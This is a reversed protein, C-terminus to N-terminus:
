EMVFNWIVKYVEGKDLKKYSGRYDPTLYSASWDTYFGACKAIESEVAFILNRKKVVLKACAPFVFFSDRVDKMKIKRSESSIEVETLEDPGIALPLNFSFTGCAGDIKNVAAAEVRFGSKGKSVVIKYEVDVHYMKRSLLIAISNGDEMIDWEFPGQWLICPNHHSGFAWIPRFGGVGSYSRYGGPQFDNRGVFAPLSHPIIEIDGKMLGQLSAGYEPYIYFSEDGNTVKIQTGLTKEAAVCKISQRRIPLGIQRNNRDDGRLRLYLPGEEFHYECYLKIAEVKKNLLSNRFHELCVPFDKWEEKTLLGGLEDKLAQNKKDPFSKKELLETISAARILADPVSEKNIIRGALPICMTGREWRNDVDGWNTMMLGYPVYKECAKVACELAKQRRGTLLGDCLGSAMITKFGMKQFMDIAPSDSDEDYFWFAIVADKSLLELAEPYHLLMDHWVIPIKGRAKLVAAAPNIFEVWLRAANFGSSKLMSNSPLWEDGGLLFHSGKSFSCFEELCKLLRAKGASLTFDTVTGNALGALEPYPTSFKELHGIVNFHPILEIGYDAAASDFDRWQEPTYACAPCSKEIAPLRIMNELYPLFHTFGSKAALRMAAKFAEPKLYAGRAIDYHLCKFKLNVNEL